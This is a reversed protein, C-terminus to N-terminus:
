SSISFQGQQTLPNFTEGATPPLHHAPRRKEELWKQKLAARAADLKQDREAFIQKDRGDM